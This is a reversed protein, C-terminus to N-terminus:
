PTCTVGFVSLIAILDATGVEGDGNVDHTCSPASPCTGLANILDSCGDLNSDTSLPNTGTELVEAGDSLGDGDTDARLPNTGYVNLEDMFALGDGDEDSAFGTCNCAVDIIDGFTNADGDDCTDGAFTSCSGDDQTASADYECAAPDTCGACSTYECGEDCNASADYNCAANDTCGKFTLGVSVGSTNMRWVEMHEIDWQNFSGALDAGCLQNSLTACESDPFEYSYCYAYGGELPYDIFLDHGVGFTPGNNDRNYIFNSTIGDLVGRKYGKTFSFLFNDLGAPDSSYYGQAAGDWPIASFGGFKIGDTTKFMVVTNAYGDCANHFDDANQGDGLEKQFLLSAQYGFGPPLWTLMSDADATTAIESNYFLDIPCQAQAQFSLGASVVLAALFHLTSFKTM